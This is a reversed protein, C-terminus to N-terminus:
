NNDGTFLADFVVLGSYEYIVDLVGLIPTKNWFILHVRTPPNQNYEVLPVRM